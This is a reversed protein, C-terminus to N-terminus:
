PTPAHIPLSPPFGMRARLAECALTRRGHADRITLTQRTPPTPPPALRSAFLSLLPAKGERPIVDCAAWLHLNHAPLAAEVRGVMNPQAGACCVFVGHPSLRPAAAAVYAEGGGRLEFRCPGRQVHDSVVGEGPPIYPPTGTILDFPGDAQPLDALDRLDGDLVACRPSAGNYALSRRALAASIPQAEVGLVPTDPFTWAVMMLVSGIGCGLDLAAAPHAPAHQTAFWATVLDDLSWRHGDTRQFIRWDGTLYSLDENPGPALDPRDGPGAPAPGPARWGAPRLPPKATM